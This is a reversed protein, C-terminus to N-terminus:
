KNTLPINNGVVGGKLEYVKEFGNKKMLSVAVASRSGSRCYVFYTQSKDLKNLEDVFTPDQVDLNISRAIHGDAYEASTRVDLMVADQTSAHQSVFDNGSLVISATSTQNIYMLGAIVVIGGVILVNKM